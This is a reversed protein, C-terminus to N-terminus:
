IKNLLLLLELQTTKLCDLEKLLKSERKKLEDIAVINKQISLPPIKIDLDGLITRNIAPLATGRSYGRLEKQTSKLNIYWAIYQPTVANVVNKLVMFVSSAVMSKSDDIINHAIFGHHGKALVIVDGKKLFHKGFKSSPMLAPEIFPDITHTETFDSAGLYYIEGQPNRRGNVGSSISTIEKLKM